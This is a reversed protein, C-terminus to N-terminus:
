GFRTDPRGMVDPSAATYSASKSIVIVSNWINFFCQHVKDILEYFPPEKRLGARTWGRRACSIGMDLRSRRGM